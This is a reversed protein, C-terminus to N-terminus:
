NLSNQSLNSVEVLVYQLASVAKKLDGEVCLAAIGRNGPDESLIQEIQKAATSLLADNSCNGFDTVVIYLLMDSMYGHVHAHACGIFVTAGCCMTDDALVVHHVGVMLYMPSLCTAQLM